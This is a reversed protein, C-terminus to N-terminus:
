AVFSLSFRELSHPLAYQVQVQLRQEGKMEVLTVATQFPEQLDRQFLPRVSRLFNQLSNEVWVPLEEGAAELVFPECVQEVAHRLKVCSRRLPILRGRWNARDALTYGGWVRTVGRDWLFTNIRANLLRERGTASIDQLPSVGAALPIQTALEQIGVEQDARQLWAAVAVSAPVPQGGCVLWPYFFAADPCFLGRSFGEADALSMSLPLDGLFIMDQDDGLLEFVKSCFGVYQDAPVLESAQPILLLDAKELWNRVGQLGSRHSLGRDEGVLAEFSGDGLPLLLVHAQSGGCLFFAEVARWAAADLPAGSQARLSEAQELSRLERRQPQSLGRLFLAFLPVGNRGAVLGIRPIRRPSLDGGKNHELGTM